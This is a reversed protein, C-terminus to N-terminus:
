TWSITVTNTATGSGTTINNEPSPSTQGGAADVATVQYYYATSAPLSGGTTATALTLTGPAAIAGIGVRSNTTDTNLLVSGAANAVQLSATSNSANEM